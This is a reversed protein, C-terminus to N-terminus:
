QNTRAATESVIMASEEKRQARSASYLVVTRLVGWGLALLGSVLLTYGLDPLGTAFITLPLGFIMKPLLLLTILAWLLILILPLVIQWGVRVRDQTLRRGQLKWASWSVGSVQVIILGILMSYVVWTSTNAPPLPPQQGALLTAVGKSIDAIRAPGFLLDMSNEGDILVVIGWRSEPLLIMNAHFNFTEGQHHLAPIENIPGIFWGMGYSTDPASAPVAPHHMAAIADRSVLMADTYNGDNLQAILYHTMDEATSILYGAPLLGRNYPLDVAMPFGFAYHYGTALGKPQAEAQSTYSHNM